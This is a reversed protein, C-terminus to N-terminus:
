DHNRPYPVSVVLLVREWNAARWCRKTCSHNASRVDLCIGSLGLVTNPPNARHWFPRTCQRTGLSAPLISKPPLTASPDPRTGSPYNRGSSCYWCPKTHPFIHYSTLCSHFLARLNRCLVVAIRYLVAGYCTQVAASMNSLTGCGGCRQTNLRRNIAINPGLLGRM